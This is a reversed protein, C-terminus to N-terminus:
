KGGGPGRGMGPGMGRGMGMGLGQGLQQLKQWQETTIVCRMAFLMRSWAKEVAARAEAVKDIQAFVQSEDPHEAAILPQLRAEEQSLTGHLNLLQTRHEEFIQEVQRSQADTLALQSVIQPNLWWAGMGRGAPPGRRLGPGGAQPGQWAQDAAAAPGSAQSQPFASLCLLFAAALFASKAFM